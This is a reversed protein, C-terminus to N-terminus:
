VTERQQRETQSVILLTILWYVCAFWNFAFPRIIIDGIRATLLPLSGGFIQLFILLFWGGILLICLSCAFCFALYEVRSASVTRGYARLMLFLTIGVITTWLSFEGGGILLSLAAAAAIVVLALRRSSRNPNSEM